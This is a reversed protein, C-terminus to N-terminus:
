DTIAVICYFRRKYCVLLFLRDFRHELSALKREEGFGDIQVFPLLDEIIRQSPISNISVIETGVSLNEEESYNRYVYFKKDVFVPKIPFIGIKNLIHLYLQMEPLISTHGDGMFYVTPALIRYFELLNMKKNLQSYAEDFRANM